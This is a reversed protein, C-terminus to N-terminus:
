KCLVLISLLSVLTLKQVNSHLLNELWYGTIAQWINETRKMNRVGFLRSSTIAAPKIKQLYRMVNLIWIISKFLLNSVRIAIRWFYNRTAIIFDFFRHRFCVVLSLPFGSDLEWTVRGSYEYMSSNSPPECAIDISLYLSSLVCAECLCWLPSYPMWFSLMLSFLMLLNSM